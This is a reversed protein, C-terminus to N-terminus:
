GRRPIAITISYPGWGNPSDCLYLDFGDATQELVIVDRGTREVVWARALDLGAAIETWAPPTKGVDNWPEGDFSMVSPRAWHKHEYQARTRTFVIRGSGDIRGEIRLLKPQARVRASESAGGLTALVLIVAALNMYKM